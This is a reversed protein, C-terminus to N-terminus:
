ERASPRRMGCLARVHARVHPKSPLPYPRAAKQWCRAHPACRSAKTKSKKNKRRSKSRCRRNPRQEIFGLGHVDRGTQQHERKPPYPTARQSSARGAQRDNPDLLELANRCKCGCGGTDKSLWSAYNREVDTVAPRTRAVNPAKRALVPDRNTTRFGHSTSWNELSKRDVGMMLGYSAPTERKTYRAGPKGPDNAWPSVCCRVGTSM